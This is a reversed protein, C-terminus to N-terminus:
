LIRKASVKGFNITSAFNEFSGVWFWAVKQKETEVGVTRHRMGVRFSVVPLTTHIKKFRLGPHNPNEKWLHFNTEALKRIDPPLDDYHQWYPAERLLNDHSVSIPSLSYTNELKEQSRLAKTAECALWDQAQPTVVLRDWETKDEVREIIEWAIRERDEPALTKLAEFAQNLLEGM